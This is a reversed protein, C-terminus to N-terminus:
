LCAHMLLNLDVYIMVLIDQYPNQKAIKLLVLLIILAKLVCIGWNSANGKFHRKWIDLFM